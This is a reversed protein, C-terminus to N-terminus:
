NQHNNNDILIFIGGLIGLFTGFIIGLVAVLVKDNDTEIGKSIRSISNFAPITWILPIIFFSEVVFVIFILISGTRTLPTM